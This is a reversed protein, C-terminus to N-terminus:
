HYHFFINHKNENAHWCSKCTECSGPCEKYNDPDPNVEGARAIQFKYKEYLKKDTGKPMTDFTSFLIQLNDPKESYDLTFAKTFALFNINPFETIVEIWMNLYSQSFFDGAVHIRFYDKKYTTLFEQLQRKLEPINNRALDTNRDYALKTAPYAKYAKLAYCKAACHSHNPCTEVPTVSFSALRGM